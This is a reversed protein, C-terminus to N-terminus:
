WEGGKETMHQLIGCLSINMNEERYGRPLGSLSFHMKLFAAEEQGRRIKGGDGKAVRRFERPDVGGEPEGGQTGRREDIGM